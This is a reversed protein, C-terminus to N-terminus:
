THIVLTHVLKDHWGQRNKDVLVWLFGLCFIGSIIYGIRRFFSGMYTVESGDTKVVRIGLLLKGLTQGGNGILYTFYFYDATKYFLLCLVLAWKWERDSLLVGIGEWLSDPTGGGFSFLITLLFLLFFYLCLTDILFALARFIFGAPKVPAPEIPFVPQDPFYHEM